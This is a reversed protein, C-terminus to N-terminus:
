EDGVRRNWALEAFDKCKIKTIIRKGQRDLLGCAPRLVLGEAPCDALMSPFGACVYDVAHNLTMWGVFPVPSIGFSDAIREVGARELWVGGATADFLIINQHGLYGEGAKQIGKGYGEGYLTIPGTFVDKCKDERFVDKLRAFLEAPIQARDTKGGFRAAGGDWHIRINTGDVKETAEWPCDALIEFEQTAWQGELLTKMKTAPDRLWLTQIKHYELMM